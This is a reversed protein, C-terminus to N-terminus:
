RSDVRAWDLAIQSASVHAADLFVADGTTDIGSYLKRAYVTECFTADFGSFLALTSVSALEHTNRLRILPSAADLVHVLVVPMNISPWSAHVLPLDHLRRAGNRDQFFAGLKFTCMHIDGVNRTNVARFVLVRQGHMTTVVVKSSFQIHAQPLAFKSWFIGALISSVTLGIMAEIAVLANHYHDGPAPGVTGYGITSFTHMSLYLCIEFPSNRPPVMDPVIYLTEDFRLWHLVGFLVTVVTSLGVIGGIIVRWRSNLIHYYTYQYAHPVHRPQVRPAHAIADDLHVYSGESLLHAGLSRNSVGRSSSHKFLIPDLAADVFPAAPPPPLTSSVPSSADETTSTSPTNDHKWGETNLFVVPPDDRSKDSTAPTVASLKDFELVLHNTETRHVMPEFHSNMRVVDSTYSHQNVITAHRNSDVGTITVHLMADPGVVAAAGHLPSTADIVHILDIALRFFIFDAQQLPLKCRTVYHGHHLRVDVLSFLEMTFVADMIVDTDLDISPSANAVRVVLAAADGRYQPHVCCVSSFAVQVKPLSLKTYIIGAITPLMVLSVFGEVLTVYNGCRDKSYVIGFGITSFAQYSLNYGDLLSDTEQCVFHFFCGFVFIIGFYLITLVVAVQLWTLNLVYYAMDKYFARPRKGISRVRRGFFPAANTGDFTCPAATVGHWLHKWRDM